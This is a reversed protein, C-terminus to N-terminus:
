SRVQAVLFRSPCLLAWDTANAVQMSFTVTDNGRAVSINGSGTQSFVTSSQMIITAPSQLTYQGSTTQTATGTLVSGNLYGRWTKTWVTASSLCINSLSIIDGFYGLMSTPITPSHPIFTESTNTGLNGSTSQSVTSTVTFTNANVYTFNTFWGTLAAGTSITLHVGATNQDATIGHAAWTVTITTGTQSYTGGSGGILLYRKPTTSPYINFTAQSTHEWRAASAVFVTGNAGIDTVFAQSGVAYNTSPYNAILDAWTTQVVYPRGIPNVLM